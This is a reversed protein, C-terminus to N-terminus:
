VYFYIATPLISKYVFSMNGFKCNPTSSRTEINYPVVIFIETFTGTNLLKTKDQEKMKFGSVLFGVEGQSLMMHNETCFSHTPLIHYM